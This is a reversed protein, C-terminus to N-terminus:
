GVIITYGSFFRKHLALQQSHVSRDWHPLLGTSSAAIDYVSGVAQRGRSYISDVWGEPRADPQADPCVAAPGTVEARDGERVDVVAWGAQLQQEQRDAERVVCRACPVLRTILYLGRSNQMFRTGLDPYWDELLTDVHAVLRALLGAAAAADPQVTAGGPPRLSANPVLIELLALNHVDIPRWQADAGGLLLQARAYDCATRAPSVDSVAQKVRLVPVGARLLEVGTQWCRWTSVAAGGYLRGSLSSFRPDALLRTILRPWFGSPFYSMLYLRLLSVPSTVPSTVPPIVPPVIPQTSPPSVLSVPQTPPPGVLADVGSM